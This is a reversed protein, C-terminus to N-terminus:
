KKIIQYPFDKNKQFFSIIEVNCGLELFAHALNVVVREAGGTISLDGVTLAISKM